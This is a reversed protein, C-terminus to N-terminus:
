RPDINGDKLKYKIKLIQYPCNRILNCLFLLINLTRYDAWYQNLRKLFELFMNWVLLKHQVFNEFIKIDNFSNHCFVFQIQNFVRKGLIKCKVSMKHSTKQNYNKFNKLIWFDLEWFLGGDMLKALFLPLSHLSSTRRDKCEHGRKSLYGITTENSHFFFLDCMNFGIFEETSEFDLLLLFSLLIPFYSFFFLDLGQRINIVTYKLSM